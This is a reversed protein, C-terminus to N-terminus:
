RPEHLRGSALHLRRTLALEALFREDHSVVVFAGRYAALASVLQAVSVLDLNNTPEDLLLLQPAPEAHLMCALTARLREGGSLARVPLHARSGRFLYRALLNMRDAASMTPSTDALAEAVTRDPDLLDLRQSLHAVRGEARRLEGADPTLDGTVLRLLSSKGAGNGGTLAIREPGRITLDVGGEAFLAREGLRLQLGEGAFVTRGAPVATGPLDLVIAQDDRLAREAEQLRTRAGDLRDAHVDDARGASEQARRKLKGIVIKPLGADQVTRAANGSKRQARERALQRERKERKVQQEATRVDREVAEHEARVAAEWDTFGGGYTRLEGRDLEAIRDMRDLLARDHSVVLLCGAFDDLATYLTRRADGDLNNTPEDLLLVDPRTLLQAALGLTVVQGGSLTDLRRDLAVDGLGLRDLQARTREEVDWDTGITAFHAEAADGSEIAALAALVPAVGLVEAVTLDGALPLSQPLYGLVGDVTVTGAASRLEGAILKLLTSKGAGNPAVLGTRGAGVACSFGALVPTGDPWAFSLASCVVSADPM